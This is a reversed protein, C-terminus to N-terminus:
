RVKGKIDTNPNRIEFVSPTVSPKLIKNIISTDGFPYLFGYGASGGDVENGNIDLNYLKRGDAFQNVLKLNTIGIVGDLGIIDYELDNLNMAQRFQM